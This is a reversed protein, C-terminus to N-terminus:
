LGRRTLSGIGAQRLRELALAEHSSLGQLREQGQQVQGQLASRALAESQALRERQAMEAAARAAEMRYGEQQSRAAILAKLVDPDATNHLWPSWEYDDM